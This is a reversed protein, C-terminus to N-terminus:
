RMKQRMTEFPNVVTRATGTVRCSEVVVSLAVVVAVGVAEGPAVFDSVRTGVVNDVWEEESEELEVFCTGPVTTVSEGRTRVDRDCESADMEEKEDFGDDMPEEPKAESTCTGLEVEWDGVIYGEEGLSPSSSSLSSAGEFEVYL